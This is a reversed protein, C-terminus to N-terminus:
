YAEFRRVACRIKIALVIILSNIAAVLLISFINYGIVEYYTYAGPLLKFLYALLTGPWAITVMYFVNFIAQSFVYKIVVAFVAVFIIYLICTAVFDKLTYRDFRAM